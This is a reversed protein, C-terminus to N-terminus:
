VTEPPQRKGLLRVAAEPVDVAVDKEQIRRLCKEVRRTVELNDSTTNRLLEVAVPGRRIIETMAKERERYSDSGLQSILAALKPRETDDLTRDRFFALLAATDTKVGAGTLIQEESNPTYPRKNTNDFPDPEDATKKDDKPEDKKVQKKDDANQSFSGS